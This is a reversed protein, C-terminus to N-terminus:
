ILVIEDIQVDKLYSIIFLCMKKSKRSFCRWVCLENFAKHSKTAKLITKSCRWNGALKAM